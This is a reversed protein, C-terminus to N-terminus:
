RRRGVKGGPTMGAPRAGPIAATPDRSATDLARGAREWSRAWLGLAPVEPWAGLGLVRVGLMRREEETPLLQVGEEGGVETLPAVPEKSGQPATPGLSPCTLLAQQIGVALHLFRSAAVALALGGQAGVVAGVEELAVLQGEIPSTGQSSDDPAAM